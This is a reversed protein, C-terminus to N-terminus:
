TRTQTAQNEGAVCQLFDLCEREARLDDLMHIHQDDATIHGGQVEAAAYKARGVLLDEEQGIPVLCFIELM